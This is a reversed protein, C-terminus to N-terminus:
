INQVVRLSMRLAYLNRELRMLIVFLRKVIVTLPQDQKELKM